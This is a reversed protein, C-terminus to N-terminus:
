MRSSYADNTPIRARRHQKGGGGGGGAGYNYGRVTKYVDSMDVKRHRAKSRSRSRAYGEDQQVQNRLYDYRRQFNRSLTNGGVQQNGLGRKRHRRPRHKKRHPRDRSNSRESEGASNSRRRVGNRRTRNSVSELSEYIGSGRSKDPIGFQDDEIIDGISQLKEVLRLKGALTDETQLISTRAIIHLFTVWRHAITATFQVVLIVAFMVLFILGLPEFKDPEGQPDDLRPIPVYFDDELTEKLLQLQFLLIIWLFNLMLYGFVLNNRLDILNQADQAEKRKDKDLPHLHAKILQKWFTIEKDDLYKIEGSGLIDEEIWRPNTLEDRKIKKKVPVVEAQKAAEKRALIEQLENRPRKGDLENKLNEIEEKLGSVLDNEEKEAKGRGIMTIYFEKLDNAISDLGLWAILGKKKLKEKRKKEEEEIREMEIEEKTKKTAVERTGWSVVHINCISYLQLLLYGSPILLFYLLGPIVCGFEQPHLVAATAYFGGLMILFIINPSTISQMFANIVLGVIVVMMVIAYLASMIQAVLVQTDCKTTFCVLIYFATPCLAIMHSQWLNTGLVSNFSGGIMLLVTAPGLIGSVFLLFQYAMFPTSINDNRRITIQWTSLLDLSNMMTSPGWRRRQNYFEHFSEPAYTLADAAASYEVRYGQQLLLTCLWRDEGQDFQVHEVPASAKVTYRRMVNDDMLASGRFLSFCGPSCLVCGYIHEAAKQLWHSIAYEFDQYWVVPGAGIPHIRGCAAGVKKNKKLLDVLLRVADPKFDVDGDLALMFTNAAKRAIEEPLYKFISGPAFQTKQRQDKSNTGKWLDDNSIGCLRYGLLYYMYMCQSWRKKHRIKNKDKLHMIILTGGPLKWTLRGGYPTPTREPCELSIAAKHVSSGAEDIVEIFQRVFQNPVFEEDDNLETADDFLVHTEFEYYDPDQFTPDQERLNRRACQDKDMRFVSKLLQTMENKTEHWMTACGYITPVVIEDDQQLTNEGREAKNSEEDEENKERDPDELIFDVIGRNNYKVEADRRRRNFLFSQELLISSYLPAVFLKEMKDMTNQRPWWIHGSIVMESFWWLIACIIHFITGGSSSTQGFGEPCLWEFESNTIMQNKCQLFLIIVTVPTSLVLPINFSVMQMCLKCTLVATIYGAVGSVVQVIVPTYESLYDAFVKQRKDAIYFEIKFDQLFVYPFAVIIGISWFSAIVMAKQRLVHMQAKVDRLPIKYQGNAFSVNKEIFNEWWMMSVLILCIPFMWRSGDVAAGSWEVNRYIINSFPKPPISTTTTINVQRTESDIVGTLSNFTDGLNRTDYSGFFIMVIGTIQVILAAINAGYWLMKKMKNTKNLNDMITQKKEMQEPTMESQLHMYTQEKQTGPGFNPPHGFCVKCVAPILCVANMLCVARIMDLRPMLVFVLICIGVTHFSEMVLIQVLAMPKPWPQSGFAMKFFYMIFTLANPIAMCLMIITIVTNRKKQLEDYVDDVRNLTDLKDRIMGYSTTIMVISIKSMVLSGLLIAFLILYIFVKIIRLFGQLSESASIRERPIVRFINWQESNIVDDDLDSTEEEEEEVQPSEAAMKKDDYVLTSGSSIHSPTVAQNLM